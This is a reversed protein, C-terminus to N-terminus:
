LEKWNEITRPVSPDKEIIHLMVKRGPEGAEIWHGRFGLDPRPLKRFGLVKTYFECIKDVDEAEVAAHNLTSLSVSIPPETPPVGTPQM